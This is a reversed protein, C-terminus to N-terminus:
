EDHLSEDHIKVLHEKNGARKADLAGEDLRVCLIWLGIFGLGLGITSADLELSYNGSSQHALSALLYWLIM